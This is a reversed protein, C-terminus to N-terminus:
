RAYLYAAIDRAGQADIGTVPMAGNPLSARPNVIFQAMNEPTNPLVGAVYVRRAIDTLPPGTLGRAGTVGPISHCGACGFNRMLEAAREPDGGTLQRALRVTESRKMAAYGLGGAAALVLVAVALSILRWRM